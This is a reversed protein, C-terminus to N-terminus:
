RSLEKLAEEYEQMVSKALEVQRAFEARTAPPGDVYEELLAQAKTQFKIGESSLKIMLRRHFEESVRVTLARSKDNEAATVM